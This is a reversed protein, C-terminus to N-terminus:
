SSAAVVEYGCLTEISLDSCSQIYRLAGGCSISHASLGRTGGYSVSTTEM